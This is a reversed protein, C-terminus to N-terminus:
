DGGNKLFSFNYHKKYVSKPIDVTKLLSAAKLLNSLVSDRDIWALQM